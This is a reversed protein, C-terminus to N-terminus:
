VQEELATLKEDSDVVALRWEIDECKSKATHWGVREARRAFRVASQVM